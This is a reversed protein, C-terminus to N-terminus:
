GIEVTVRRFAPADVHPPAGESGHGHVSIRRRDIGGAELAARVAEARQRSLRDLYDPHDAGIGDTYGHVSIPRTECDIKAAWSALEARATDKLKDSRLDFLLDSQFSTEVPCGAPLTVDPVLRTGAPVVPLSAVRPTSVSFFAVVLVAPLTIGPVLFWWLRIRRNPRAYRDTSVDKVPKRV